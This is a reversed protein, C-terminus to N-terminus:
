LPPRGRAARMQNFADFTASYQHSAKAGAAEKMRRMAAILEDDGHADGPSSYNIEAWARPDSRPASGSGAALPLLQPPDMDEDTAVASASPHLLIRLGKVNSQRADQANVVATGLFQSTYVAPHTEAAAQFRFMVYTGCGIGIRAPVEATILARMLRAATAAADKLSPMTIFASDALTVAQPAAGSLLQAAFQQFENEIIQHFNVFQAALGGFPQKRSLRDVHTFTHEDIDPHARVLDAFGLLDLCMMVTNETHAVAFAYV